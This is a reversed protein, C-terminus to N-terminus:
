EIIVKINESIMDIKASNAKAQTLSGLSSKLAITILIKEGTKKGNISVKAPWSTSLWNTKEAAFITFSEDACESESVKMKQASVAAICADFAERIPCQAKVMKTYKEAM